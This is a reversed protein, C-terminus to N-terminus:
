DERMSRAIANSMPSVLYDLANRAETAIVATVPMGPELAVDQPPNTVAIKVTYAPEAEEAATAADDSLEASIWEVVGPLGAERRHRVGPLRLEVAMGARVRERSEPALRAEVVLDGDTPVIDMLDDGPAVVGGITAVTLDVVVGDVPAAIDARAVRLREAAIKPEIEALAAVVDSLEKSVASVYRTQMQAHNLRAEGQAARTEAIQATLTAEAGNLAALERQRANLAVRTVLGSDALTRAAETDEMVLARQERVSAIEAELADLRTAQRALTGDLLEAEAARERRRADFLAEQSAVAAILSPRDEAALPAFDPAEDEALEAELRIKRATLADREAALAAHAAEAESADLRMLIEGRGVRAGDSVLLESVIGGDLHQVTKVDGEIKFRGEAIVAGSVPATWLWAGFGVAVLGTVVLAGVLPGGVGDRRTAREPTM